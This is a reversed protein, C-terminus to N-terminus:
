DNMTIVVFFPSVTGMNWSQAPSAPDNAIPVIVEMGRPSYAPKLNTAHGTSDVRKVNRVAVPNLQPYTLTIKETAPDRLDEERLQFAAVIRRPRAHVEFGELASAGHGFSAIDAIFGHDNSFNKYATVPGGDFIDAITQLGLGRETIKDGQYLDRTYHYSNPDHESEKFYFTKVMDPNKDAGNTIAWYFLKTYWDTFWTGNGIAGVETTWIPMDPFGRGASAARMRPWAWVTNWGSQYHFSLVDTDDWANHKDMLAVWTSLDECSPWGGYVVKGGLERIKGAAPLYANTFYEDDSGGWFGCTPHKWPENWIQFYEVGYPPARLFKVVREVYKLWDPIHKSSIYAPHGGIYVQDAPSASWPVAYALLVLMGVNNRNQELVKDGYGELFSQNWNGRTPELHRWLIELRNMSLANRYLSKSGSGGMNVGSFNRFTAGAQKITDAGASHVALVVVALVAFRWLPSSCSALNKKLVRTTRM